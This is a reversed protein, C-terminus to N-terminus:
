FGRNRITELCRDLQTTLESYTSDYHAGPSTDLISLCKRLYKEEEKFRGVGNNLDAISRYIRIRNEAINGPSGELHRLAAQLTEMAENFSGSWQQAFAIRIAVLVKDDPKQVSTLSTILSPSGLMNEIVALRSQAFRYDGPSTEENTLSLIEKLAQRAAQLDGDQVHLFAANRAREIMKDKSRVAPTDSLASLSLALDCCKAKLATSLKPSTPINFVRGYGAVLLTVYDNIWSSVHAAHTSHLNSVADVAFAVSEDTRNLLLLNFALLLECKLKATDQTDPTSKHTSLLKGLEKRSGDLVTVGPAGMIRAEYANQLNETASFAFELADPYEANKFMELAVQLNFQAMKLADTFHTRVVEKVARQLAESQEIKNQMRLQRTVRLWHLTNQVSCNCVMSQRCRMPLGFDSLYWSAIGILIVLLMGAVAVLSRFITSGETAKSSRREPASMTESRIVELSHKLDKVSQYRDGPSKALCTLVAKELGEPLTRRCQLSFTPVPQHIHMFVVQLPNTNQFPAAGSIMQYIICGLAYIDSRADAAKGQAQEPSIYQPTGMILGTKTLREQKEGEEIGTTICSLGFDVVKVFDPEPTDLIMINEPKLDRHIIGANHSHELADCIQIAISLTRDLSLGGEQQHLLTALSRGEMFEMVFYPRKDDLLGYSYFMAIHTHNMLSLLKAERQFRQLFEDSTNLTPSFLKLAMIKNLNNHRAKYVFGMGGSGVLSLIEYRESVVQGILSQPNM